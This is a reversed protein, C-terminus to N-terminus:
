MWHACQCASLVLTHVASSQFASFSSLYTIEIRQTSKDDDDVTSSSEQFCICIYLYIYIFLSFPFVCAVNRARSHWVCICLPMTLILFRCALLLALSRDFAYAIFSSFDVVINTMVLRFCLFCFVDDDDDAEVLFSEKEKKKRSPWYCSHCINIHTYIYICICICKYM